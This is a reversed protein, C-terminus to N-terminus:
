MDDEDSFLVDSGRGAGGGGGRGDEDYRGSYYGDYGADMMEM